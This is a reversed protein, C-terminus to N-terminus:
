VNGIFGFRGATLSFHKEKVATEMRLHLVERSEALVVPQETFVRELSYVRSWISRDTLAGPPCSSTLSQYKADNWIHKM